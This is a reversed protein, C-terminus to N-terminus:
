INHYQRWSEFVFLTWIEKRYDQKGQIHKHILNHVYSPNFLGSNKMRQESFTDLLMAKLPGRFWGGLPIGFGKKPRNVIKEPVLNTVAKKLLYKRKLGKIKMGHPLRNVFAALDKDLFPARVELSNMMSARDVKVLIDDHLYLNIYNDILTDISNETRREKEFRITESYITGHHCDKFQAPNLLAKQADPTFSGLWVNNRLGQNKRTFSSFGKLFHNVKFSVSMNEHSFPIFKGAWRMKKIIYDPLAEMAHSFKQATFTDYGAFLEDGGDGSLAVTIHNKAFKCLLYTPIISADAFPEDLSEIIQPFIDIIDGSNLIEEYHNVGFHDAASRAFGSEDFSNEEFGINFTKLSDPPLFETMLGVISSSDIGGSLFVGLPVDSMLRKEVSNKLLRLLEDAADEVSIKIKPEYELNWYREPEKLFSMNQTNLVLRSAAPLKKCNKFICHPTPVYEYALYKNVSLMDLTKSFDPHPFFAKLESAFLFLGNKYFYYLPKKGFPDKALILSHRNIDYLALAFMGDLRNLFEIGWKEYAHVIVEADTQTYFSHGNKILEQKLERYNYIEGNLVTMISRNENFIPQKGVPSVDIISLRRHGIGVNGQVFYGEDDPGRHQLTRNMTKLISLTVPKKCDSNIWGVIGCM